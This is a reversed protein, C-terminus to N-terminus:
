SAGSVVFATEDVFCWSWQEGPEISCEGYVAVDVGAAALSAQVTAVYAGSQLRAALDHPELPSRGTHAHYLLDGFVRLDAELRDDLERQADAFQGLESTAGLGRDDSSRLSTM